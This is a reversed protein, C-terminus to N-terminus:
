DIALNFGVVGAQWPSSEGPRSVTGAEFCELYTHRGFLYIGTYTHAGLGDRQAFNSHQDLASFENKLFPSQRIEAYVPSPLVMQVHNLFVPPISQQGGLTLVLVTLVLGLLIPTRTPM